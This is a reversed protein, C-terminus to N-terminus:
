DRPLGADDEAHHAWTSLLTDLAQYKDHALVLAARGEQALTLATTLSAGSRAAAALQAHTAVFAELRRIGTITATAMNRSQGGIGQGSYLSEADERATAIIALAQKTVTQDVLAFARGLSGVHAAVSALVSAAGLRALRRRTLPNQLTPM